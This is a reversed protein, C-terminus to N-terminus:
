KRFNNTLGIRKFNQLLEETLERQNVQIAEVIKKVSEM